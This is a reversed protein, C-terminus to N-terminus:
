TGLLNLIEDSLLDLVNAYRASAQYAKQYKIISVAEEDLNVGSFADRQNKLQDLVSNQTTVNEEATREDIGIQYILTSYFQSASATASNFLREDAIAALLRANANNGAGTGPGGAAVQRPDTISVAMTRAAGTTSGPVLPTFPVFFDGGAGGDLDVGQAHQENVRSIIGAAIDDLVSLYGAIKNDRLDIFGGLKGSEISNTIETGNLFVGQFAGSSASAIELDWSQEECVLLGGQWCSRTMAAWWVGLGVGAAMPLVPLEPRPGRWLRYAAFALVLPALLRLAAVKPLVYGSDISRDFVLAVAVLLLAFAVEECVTAARPFGV